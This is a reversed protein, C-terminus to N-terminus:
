FTLFVLTTQTAPIHMWATTYYAGHTEKTSLSGFNVSSYYVLLHM